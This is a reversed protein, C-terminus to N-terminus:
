GYLILGIISAGLIVIGLLERRSVKERFFLVSAMLSFILEVQGVAFVYAANQLTFAWFWCFSGLVSFVGTAAVKSWAAAVASLQGPERLRIWLGLGILQGATVVALTLAARMVPDESPVALTAARYTVASVAFFVGSMLGLTISRYAPGDGKPPDSLLLVGAFGLAIAFVGFAGVTDGLILVGVLVTLLVESKKLTIGVAFNRHAFLAVTCMTALIQSLGGVAAFSWFRAGGLVIEAGSVRAYLLVFVAAIPAAFVFRALTAGSTSLETSKLHKQVMFRLTQVFAAAISLVIWLEM